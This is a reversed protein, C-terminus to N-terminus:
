SELPLEQQSLQGHAIYMHEYLQLKILDRFTQLYMHMCPYLNCASVIYSDTM